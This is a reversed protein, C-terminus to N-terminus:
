FKERNSEEKVLFSNYKKNKILFIFLFLWLWMFILLEYLLCKTNQLFM